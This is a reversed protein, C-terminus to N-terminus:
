PWVLWGVTQKDQDTEMVVRSRRTRSPPTPNCSLARTNSIDILEDYSQYRQDPGEGPDPQDRVRSARSMRRLPQLSVAQNKLHKLAVLSANEAEFPPGRSAHFLTRRALLHRQSFGRNTISSRPRL